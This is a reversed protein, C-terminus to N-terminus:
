DNHFVEEMMSWQEGEARSELPIQCPDTLKWWERTTPDAAIKAADQAFDQGHYEWYGFLINEPERLFISYNRINCESIKALVDPWANAHLRKYEAIKDAKIGIMMGMRKM